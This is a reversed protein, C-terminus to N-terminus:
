ETVLGAGVPFASDSDLKTRLAPRNVRVDVNAFDDHGTLTADNIIAPLSGVQSLSPTFGIQFFVERNRGTIGTGRAINGINWVVEKTSPNFSLDESTPSFPGVFRIWSPLTSRIQARSINNASNSLTWVVTYTTEKGVKPSVPGSNVFPGSYYLAKNAFGSDSIIHITSSESNNLEQVNFGDLAQKGSIDIEFNISPNSLISGPSGILSLPSLSFSVTGTDGPNVQRFSSISNRDWTITNTASDYFGQIANITKENIANGDIKARIVLDNISTDMNNTWVIEGHVLTKSDIAHERQSVGNLLIKTEVFPKKIILSHTISNFIVDMASKDSKSQTGGWVKFIKEEGAFVDV